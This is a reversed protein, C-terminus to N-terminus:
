KNVVNVPDGKLFQEINNATIDMIRQRSEKAAWSIHPTILCNKANILPNDEKIPETSVVDLGAAYVKGENLADALDQEVVLQGRSNNILIVGDKMKAINEKNIIKGQNLPELIGFNGKKLEDLSNILYFNMLHGDTKPVCISKENVIEKIM